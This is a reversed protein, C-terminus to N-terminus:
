DGTDSERRAIGSEQRCEPRPTLSFHFGYFDPQKLWVEILQTIVLM